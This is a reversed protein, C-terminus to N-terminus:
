QFEVPVASLTGHRSRLKFWDASKAQPNCGRGQCRFVVSEGHSAVPSTGRFSPASISLPEFGVSCLKLREM